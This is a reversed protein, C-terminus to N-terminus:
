LRNFLTSKGVNQKGVLAVTLINSINSGDGVVSLAACSTLSKSSIFRSQALLSNGLLTRRIQPLM